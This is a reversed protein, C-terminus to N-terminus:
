TVRGEAMAADIEAENKAFEAPSMRSIQDRTFTPRGNNPSATRTTRRLSPSAVDRAAETRKSNGVARKYDDFVGIVEQASGGARYDSTAIGDGFLIIRYTRPQRDLWGKFDDTNVIQQFDAHAARIANFHADAAAKATNQRSTEATKKVNGDITDMRGRLYRIEELMPSMIEPYTNVLGELTSIAGTSDPKDPSKPGANLADTLRDVESQLQRSKQQEDALARRHEAAEQTARTMRAQANRIREQANELTLGHLEDTDSKEPADAPGPEPEVPEPEPADQAAANAGAESGDDDATATDPKEPPKGNIRAILEDAEQDLNEYSSTM